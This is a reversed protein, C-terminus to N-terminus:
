LFINVHRQFNQQSIRKRTRYTIPPFNFSFQVIANCLCGCIPHSLITPKKPFGAKQEFATSEVIILILPITRALRHFIASSPFPDHSSKYFRLSFIFYFFFFLGFLGFDENLELLKSRHSTYRWRFSLRKGLPM